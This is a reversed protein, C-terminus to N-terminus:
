CPPQNTEGLERGRRTFTPSDFEEAGTRAKTEQPDDPFAWQEGAAATESILRPKEGDPTYPVLEGQQENEGELQAAGAEEEPAPQEDFAGTENRFQTLTEQKRKYGTNGGRQQQQPARFAGHGHRPARQSQHEEFGTAVIVIEVKDELEPDEVCGWIFTADDTLLNEIYSAAEYVEYMGLDNGCTINMLVGKAGNMSCEMLPSEVAQSLAEAIRNAGSAGGVGMVAPGAEKMVAKLDTFDVNVMGPHTILNTVGLVAQRLVEDALSFSETLPTEKKSIELLRDNPVVILADVCDRLKEIGQEACRKKRAGEFAFPKTVVAVTLIGMEKAAQAIVPLAGTGTGGGMGATFYVMDSGRLFSRIEVLSERAAIEGIEPIAGAGLGKTIKEGLIITDRCLSMELSRADTNVALLDVGEIGKSIVHNIANGGGGGVAVVCIVEKRARAPKEIAFPLKNESPKGQGENEPLYEREALISM